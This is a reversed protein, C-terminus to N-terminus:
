NSENGRDSQNHHNYKGKRGSDHDRRSPGGFRDRDGGGRRPQDDRKRGEDEYQRGGIFYIFHIFSISGVSICVVLNESIIIILAM